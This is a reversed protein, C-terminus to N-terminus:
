EQTRKGALTNLALLAAGYGPENRPYIVKALPACTAIEATFRHRLKSLGCWMSGTTVVEFVESPNFLAQIVVWTALSLEKVAQEVIANAVVDGESAALDVISALAAIEKVGWERQYVVEILDELSKLELHQILYEQIITPESCGDYAKLAMRMGQVAIQYASGYDGLIHGWGDVRKTCGRYNQGFVVSGTGAIATVGVKHGVGGVLAILADHCIILNSAPVAWTVPLTQSSQLQEVLGHVVQIDVQRDVGALGLCIAEVKVAGTVATAQAIASQISGFAASIGVNHYNSAGAEGRGLIQGTDDLVVCVTKTGGGDIAIRFSKHSLAM